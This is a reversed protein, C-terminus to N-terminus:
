WILVQHTREEALLCDLLVDSSKRMLDSLSAKLKFGQDSEITDNEDQLLWEFM